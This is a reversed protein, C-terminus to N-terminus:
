LQPSSETSGSTRLMGIFGLSLPRHTIQYVQWGMVLTQAQTAMTLGMAGGLFWRYEKYRLAQYPDHAPESSM